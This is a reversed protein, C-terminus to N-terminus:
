KCSCENKIFFCLDKLDTRVQRLKARVEERLLNYCMAVLGLGLLLYIFNIVLKIQNGEETDDINTGPVFDGIGLKCLSTVCFYVSDLYDWSEWEAFTITGVAIYCVLVYLSATSPVIV